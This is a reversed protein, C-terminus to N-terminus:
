QQRKLAEDVQQITQETTPQAIVPQQLQPAVQQTAAPAAGAPYLHDTAEVESVVPTITAPATQTIVRRQVQVPAQAPAPVTETTTTTIIQQTAFGGQYAPQMSKPLKRGKADVADQGAVPLAPVLTKTVVNQSTVSTAVQANPNAYLTQSAPVVVQAAPKQTIRPDNPSVMETKQRILEVEIDVRRDTARCEILQSKPLKEDCNTVPKTDGYYASTVNGATFYGQSQFQKLVNTVRKDSLRQNYNYTAFKDAYGVFKVSQVGNSNNVESIVQNMRNIDDSDINYKDINFYISQRILDVYSIQAQILAPQEVVPTPAPAGFGCEDHGSVWKTRLCNGRFDQAFNGRFDRAPKISHATAATAALLSITAITITKKLM